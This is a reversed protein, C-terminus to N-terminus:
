LPPHHFLHMSCARYQMPFTVLLCALLTLWWAVIALWGQLCWEQWKPSSPRATPSGCPRCTALRAIIAAWGLERGRERGARGGEKRFSIGRAWDASYESSCCVTEPHSVAYVIGSPWSM